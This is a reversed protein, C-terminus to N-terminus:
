AAKRQSTKLQSKEVKAVARWVPALARIREYKERVRQLEALADQLMLATLKKNSVVDRIMRYGGGAKRDVTLSVVKPTRDECVVHLTILQRAQWLRFEVAAKTDDWVFQTHLASRKNKRAWDVVKDAHLM